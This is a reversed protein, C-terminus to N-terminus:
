VCDWLSSPLHSATLHHLIQIHRRRGPPNLRLPVTSSSETAPRVREKRLGYGHSQSLPLGPETRGEHAGEGADHLLPALIIYDDKERDVTLAASCIDLIHLQM